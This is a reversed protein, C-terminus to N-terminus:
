SLEAGEVPVRRQVCRGATFQKSWVIRGSKLDLAVIADSLATAPVSYNDSTASTCAAASPMWPRRRGSASAPRASCPWAPRPRAASGPRSRGPVDEVVAPRRQDAARRRQRPVHLLSVACRERASGGVVLGARLRCRRTRDGGRDSAHLRAGRRPGEVVARRDRGAARLVLGDHRRVAARAQRRRARGPHRRAGPRQGPLDVRSLRSRCADRAGRRRRQRRLPPRRPGDAALYASVDGDFGFAWKLKLQPVQSPPSAPRPPRSFAPTARARAGATGPSRPRAALRITRDACFASAATRRGRGAHGLYAAVALREERSMTLAITMMAGGDLARMIRAAPMQRLADRTRSARATSDHCSPATRRTPRKAPLRSRPAAPVCVCLALGLAMLVRGWSGAHPLQRARLRPAWIDTQM